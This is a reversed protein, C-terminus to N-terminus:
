ARVHMKHKAGWKPRATKLDLVMQQREASRGGRRSRHRVADAAPDAYSFSHSGLSETLHHTGNRGCTDELRLLPSSPDGVHGSAADRINRLRKNEKANLRKKSQSSHKRM